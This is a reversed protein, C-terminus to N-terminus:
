IIRGLLSIIIGAFRESKEVIAHIKKHEEMDSKVIEILESLKQKDAKTPFASRIEQQTLRTMSAIRMDLEANTENAAKEGAERIIDKTLITKKGKNSSTDSM